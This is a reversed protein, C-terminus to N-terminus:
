KKAESKSIEKKYRKLYFACHVAEEKANDCTMWARYPTAYFRGDPASKALVECRKAVSELLVAAEKAKAILDDISDESMKEKEKM